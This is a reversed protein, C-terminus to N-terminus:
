LTLKIYYIGLERMRKEPHVTYCKGFRRHKQVGFCAGDPIKVSESFSGNVDARFFRFYVSEFMDAITYTALDFLERETVTADPHRSVWSANKGGYYEDRTM